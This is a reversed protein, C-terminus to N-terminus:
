PLYYSLVRGWRLMIDETLLIRTHNADGTQPGLKGRAVIDIIQTYETLGVDWGAAQRTRKTVFVDRCLHTYRHVCRHLM